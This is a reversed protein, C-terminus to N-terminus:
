KEWHWRSICAGQFAWKKGSFPVSWFSLTHLKTIGSINWYVDLIILTEKISSGFSLKHFLCLDIEVNKKIEAIPWEMDFWWSNRLHGHSVGWIKNFSLGFFAKMFLISDQFNWIWEEYPEFIIVSWIKSFISWFQRRDAALLIKGVQSLYSDLSFLLWVSIQVGQWGFLGNKNDAKM